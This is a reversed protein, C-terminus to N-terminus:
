QVGSVVGTILFHCNNTTPIHCIEIMQFDYHVHHFVFRFNKSSKQSKNKLLPYKHSSKMHYFDIIKNEYM